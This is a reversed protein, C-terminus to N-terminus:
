LRGVAIRALRVAGDFGTSSVLFGLELARDGKLFYLQGTAPDGAADEWPGTDLTDAADDHLVPAVREILGGVGKMADFATGGYEWTPTLVLAHHGATFYSCSKGQAMALPTEEDSRYPPVVLKGLVAEVEEVKLLICPDPGVANAPRESPFPLDPIADRIRNAIAVTQERSVEAAHVKVDVALHGVRGFFARSTTDISNDWGPLLVPPLSARREAEKCWPQAKSASDGCMMQGMNAFAAALGRSGAPDTYVRVDVIVGSTDPELPPLDTKGLRDGLKRRLELLDANRRATATDLPLPYVCGDDTPYPVGTLPGVIKAVEAASIWGCADTPRTVTRVVTASGAPSRDPNGSRAGEATATTTSANGAAAASAPSAGRDCAALLALGALPLLRHIPAPM